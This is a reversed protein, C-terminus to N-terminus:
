PSPALGSMLPSSTIGTEVTLLYRDGRWVSRVYEIVRDDDLASTRCVRLVPTRPPLELLRREEVTPETAEITQRAKTPRAKYVVDLTTYLSDKEFDHSELGPFYPSPLNAEELGMPVDDAIRVRSIRVIPTGAPVGFVGALELSALVIRTELLRSRPTQGHSLREETFSWLRGLTDNLKKATVFAGYGPEVHILGM